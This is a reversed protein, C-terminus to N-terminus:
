PMRSGHCTFYIIQRHKAARRLLEMAEEIKDADLNSFPDDLIVPPTQNPYLVDVLAFRSCLALLDKTGASMFATDRTQGRLAFVPQLDIDLTFSGTEKAERDKWIWSLYHRMRDGLPGLFRALFQEKAKNLYFKTAQIREVAAELSAREEELVELERVADECVDLENQLENQHDTATHIQTQLARLREDTMRQEELLEAIPIEPLAALEDQRAEAVARAWEDEQKACQRLREMRVGIEQLREGCTGRAAPFASLFAELRAAHLDISQKTQALLATRQVYERYTRADEALSEILRDEAGDAAYLDVRYERAYPELQTFLAMRADSLREAAGNAATVSAEEEALLRLYADRRRRIRALWQAPGDADEDPYPAFFRSCTEQHEEKEALLADYTESERALSESLARYTMRFARRRRGFVIAATVGVLLAAAAMGAAPLLGFRDAPNWGHQLGLVAAGAALAATVVICLVIGPLDRHGRRQEKMEELRGAIQDQRAAVEDARGDLRTIEQLTRGIGDLDEEAPLADKFYTRLASLQQRREEPMRAHETELRLDKLRDADARWHAIQGVSPVLEEAPFLAKLSEVYEPRPLRAREDECARRDIELAREEEAAAAYQDATPVGAAFFAELEEREARIQALREEKEQLAAMFAERRSQVAIKGDLAQKKAELAAQEARADQLKHRVDELTERIGDQKAIRQKLEGARTNLAMLKGPHIRSNRTYDKEAEDLRQMASEFRTVDERESIGKQGMRAHFSDTMQTRLSGEPVFISKEFSDRDVAFLAEGVPDRYADSALMTDLDILAFTDNKDSAGFTREIRYRRGDAEFSLSGGYVGGDWPRYHERETLDKRRPSYEMGYFLAKIFVSLTTKGAGNEECFANLGESFDMRVDALRGFGAIECSLLRM